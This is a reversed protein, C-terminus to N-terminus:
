VIDASEYTRVSSVFIYWADHKMDMDVENQTWSVAIYGRLTGQVRLGSVKDPM